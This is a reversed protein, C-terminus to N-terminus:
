EALSFPPYQDTLLLVYAAVRYSWRNVGMVLQWIDQRYKGTFLLLVATIAILAPLLGIFPFRGPGGPSFGTLGSLCAYHPVAFPFWKVFPKWRSLEEPYEVGLDAPYDAKGLSFPPYKDTALAGCCYFSVRWGWRLVGVTFNFLPRPYIRTFLISFAAIVWVFAAAIGLFILVIVHPIILFIKVLWLGRSLKKALEGKLTLPYSPKPSKPPKDQNTRSKAM